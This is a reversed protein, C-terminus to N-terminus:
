GHRAAGQPQPQNLSTVKRRVLAIVDGVTEANEAEDDTVKIAFQDELAVALGILDLSDAALGGDDQRGRLNTVYTFRRTGFHHAIVAEVAAGASFPVPSVM